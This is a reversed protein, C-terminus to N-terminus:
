QVEREEKVQLCMTNVERRGEQVCFQFIWDVHAIGSSDSGIKSWWVVTQLKLSADTAQRNCGFKPEVMELRIKQSQIHHLTTM